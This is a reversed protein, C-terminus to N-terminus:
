LFLTEYMLTFYIQLSDSENEYETKCNELNLIDPLTSGEPLAGELNEKAKELDDMISSVTRYNQTTLIDGLVVPVVELFNNLIIVGQCLRDINFGDTENGLQPHGSMGSSGAIDICSGPAVTTLYDQIGTTGGVPNRFAVDTYNVICTNSQDGSAKVGTESSNGYYFLYRGLQDMITFSLYSNIKDAERESMANARREVTPDKNTPIGGAYLLNQIATYMDTYGDNDPADMSSANNFRTFGGLVMPDGVKPLDFTVLDPTNYNARCCYGSALTEMITVNSRDSSYKSLTDIASQCDRNTLFNNAKYLDNNVETESDPGCSTLLFLIFIGFRHMFFIKM